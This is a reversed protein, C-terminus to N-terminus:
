KRKLPADFDPIEVDLDNDPKPEADPKPKPVAALRRQAPPTVADRYEPSTKIVDQQWQPLSDFDRQAFPRESLSFVIGQYILSARAPTGKPPSMVSTVNAYTRSGDPSTTHKIGILCVAGLLEGLDFAGFDHTTLARGLWDEIDARLSSKKNSTFNYKKSISFPQGNEMREDPLEWSFQLQHKAGFGSQQTGLDIIRYCTAVHSGAPCTEFQKEEPLYIAM